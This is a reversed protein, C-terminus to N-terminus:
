AARRRQEHEELWEALGQGLRTLAKDHDVSTVAHWDPRCLRRAAWTSVDLVNALQDFSWCCLERCFAFPSREALPARELLWATRDGEIRALQGAEAMAFALVETLGATARVRINEPVNAGSYLDAFADVPLKDANDILGASEPWRILADSAQLDIRAITTLSDALTKFPTM